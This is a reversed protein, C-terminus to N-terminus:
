WASIKLTLNIFGPGAIDVKHILPDAPLKGAIPEALHRPKAKAQEALRMAADTAVGGPGAARPPEVVVRSLDIGAPWNGEAALGACIAHVRSLVDAFMHISGPKEATKEAM